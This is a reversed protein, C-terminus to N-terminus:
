AKNPTKLVELEKKLLEDLKKTSENLKKLVDDGIKLVNEYDAKKDRKGKTKLDTSALEDKLTNIMQESNFVDGDDLAIERKLQEKLRNLEVLKGKVVNMSESSMQNKIIFPM